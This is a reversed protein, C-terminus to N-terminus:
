CRVLQRKSTDIGLDCLLAQLREVTTQGQHYQVLVFRRREPRFHGRLGAVVLRGDPLQWRARRLRFVRRVTSLEQVYFDQYGKFRAGAPVAAEVVRTETVQERLNLAPQLGEVSIPCPGASRSRWGASQAGGDAIEPFVDIALAGVQDVVGSTLPSPLRHARRGRLTRGIGQHVLAHVLQLLHAPRGGAHV